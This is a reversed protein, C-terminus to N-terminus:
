DNAQEKTPVGLDALPKDLDDSAKNLLRVAAELLAFNRKIYFEDRCNLNERLLPLLVEINGVGELMFMRRDENIDTM